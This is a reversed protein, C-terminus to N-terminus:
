RPAQAGPAEDKSVAAADANNGQDCIDTRCQPRHGPATANVVALPKHFIRDESAQEYCRRLDSHPRDQYLLLTNDAGRFTGATPDGVGGVLPAPQWARTPPQAM